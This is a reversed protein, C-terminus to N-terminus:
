VIESFERWNYSQRLGYLDILLCNEATPHFGTVSNFLIRSDTYACLEIQRKLISGLTHKLVFAIDLGHVLGYLEAAAVSRTVRKSKHSFWHLINARGDEDALVIMAGLQSAYGEANAFAADTFVLLKLSSIDQPV